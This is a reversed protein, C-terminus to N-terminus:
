SQPHVPNSAAEALKEGLAIINGIDSCCAGYGDVYPAKRLKGMTVGAKQTDIFQKIQELIVKEM